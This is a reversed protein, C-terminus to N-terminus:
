LSIISLYNRKLFQYNPKAQTKGTVKSELLVCHYNIQLDFKCHILVALTQLEQESSGSCM